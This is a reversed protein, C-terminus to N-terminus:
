QSGPISLLISYLAILAISGALSVRLILNEKKLRRIEIHAKRVNNKLNKTKGIQYKFRRKINSDEKDPEKSKVFIRKQKNNKKM